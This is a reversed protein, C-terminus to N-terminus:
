TLNTLNRAEFRTVIDNEEKEWEEGVPQLDIEEVEFGEGEDNEDEKLEQNLQSLVKKEDHGPEDVYLGGRVKKEDHWPEDVYSNM